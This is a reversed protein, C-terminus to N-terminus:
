FRLCHDNSQRACPSYTIILFNYWPSRGLFVHSRLMGVQTRLTMNNGDVEKGFITSNFNDRNGTEPDSISASYNKQSDVLSKRRISYINQSMNNQKEVYGKYLIVM